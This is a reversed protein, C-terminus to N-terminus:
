WDQVTLNLIRETIERLSEDIADTFTRGEGVSEIFYSGDGQFSRDQWIAENTRRNFLTAVVKIVVIYEEANLDQNFSFPQNKFEVIRADLVADAADESVVKLTNDAVLNRIVRETVSIELNPEATENEFFPVYISKIDKATRSTTSYGCAVGLSAALAVWVLGSRRRRSKKPKM